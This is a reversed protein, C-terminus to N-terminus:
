GQNWIFPHNQDLIERLKTQLLSSFIGGRGGMVAVQSVLMYLRIM